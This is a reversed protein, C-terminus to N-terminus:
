KTFTINNVVVANINRNKPYIVIQNKDKIVQVNDVFGLQNLRKIEFDDPNTSEIKDSDLYLSFNLLVKDTNFKENTDYVRLM